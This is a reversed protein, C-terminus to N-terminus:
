IAEYPSPDPFEKQLYEQLDFFSQDDTSVFPTGNDLNSSSNSFRVDSYIKVDQIKTGGINNLNGYMSRVQYPQGVVSSLKKKNLVMPTHLEYNLPEKIGNRKLFTDTQSLSRAYLNPGVSAQHEMCRNILLGGHYVIGSNLKRLIFFDDNMLLFNKSIKPNDIVQQLNHRVNAYANGVPRVPMFNGTYWDPKGGVVWINRCKEFNALVSRISYRLEENAGERCVYVVDM